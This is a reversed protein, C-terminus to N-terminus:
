AGTKILNRRLRAEAAHRARKTGLAVAERVDLELAGTDHAPAALETLAGDQGLLWLATAYIGLAVSPDGAEMRMLTPVTVGMRGAWTALSQRRRLRAVALNAGLQTLAATTSPPLRQLALSPRPMIIIIAFHGTEYLDIKINRCIRVHLFFSLLDSAAAVWSDM